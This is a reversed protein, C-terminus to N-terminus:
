LNLYSDRYSVSLEATQDDSDAVFKLTTNGPTLTFWDGLKVAYRNRGTHDTVTKRKFDIDLYESAALTITFRLDQNKTDNVIAPNTVPGTIRATPYAPANGQNTLTIEGGAGQNLGMPVSAPVAGGGPLALGTTLTRSTGELYPFAAEFQLNFRAASPVGAEPPVDLGNMIATITRSEGNSLVFSIQQEGDLVNLSEILNTRKAIFDSASEGIIWGQISFSRRGYLASTHIGLSEGPLDYSFIRVSPVELGPIGTVAYAGENLTIDGIEITNIM